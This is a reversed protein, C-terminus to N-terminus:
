SSRRTSFRSHVHQVSVKIKKKRRKKAPMARYAQYLACLILGSLRLESSSGPFICSLPHSRFSASSQLYSRNCEALPAILSPAQFNSAEEQLKEGEGPQTDPHGPGPGPPLHAQPRATGPPATGRAAPPHCHGSASGGGAARQGKGAEATERKDSIVLTSHVYKSTNQKGSIIDLPM